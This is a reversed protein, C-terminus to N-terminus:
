WEFAAISGLPRDSPVIEEGIIRAILIGRGQRYANRLTMRKGTWVLWVQRNRHKSLSTARQVVPNIDTM